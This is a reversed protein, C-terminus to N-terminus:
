VTNTEYVEKVLATNLYENIVVVKGTEDDFKMIWCYMQDYPNGNKQVAFGTAEIIAKNGIVDLAEIKMELAGQLRAQMPPSVKELWDQLNFVGTCCTLDERLSGITWRVNPDIATVFPVWDGRSAPDLFGRVHAETLTFPM